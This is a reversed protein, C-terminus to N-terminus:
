EKREHSIVITQRTDAYWRAVVPGLQDTALSEWGRRTETLATRHEAVFGDRSLKEDLKNIGYDVAAGVLLSTGISGPAYLAGLIQGKRSAIVRGTLRTMVTSGIRNVIPTLLPTVAMATGMIAVSRYGKEAHDLAYHTPIKWRQVSWDLKVSVSGPPYIELLRTRTKIFARERADLEDMTARYNTHAKQFAEELGRQIKPNREEPRLVRMQYNDMLYGQVRASVAEWVKTPSFINVAQSGGALLAEKLLTWSRGWAHFWTAYEQLAAESDAFGDDFARKVDQRFTIAATEEKRKLFFMLERELATLVTRRAAVRVIRGEEDKLTLEIEGPRLSAINDRVPTTITTTDPHVAKRFADIGDGGNIARAAIWSATLALISVGLALGIPRSIPHGTQRNPREIPVPRPPLIEAATRQEMAAAIQQRIADVTRHTM